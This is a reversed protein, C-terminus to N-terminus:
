TRESNKHGSRREPWKRVGFTNGLYCEVSTVRNFTNNICFDRVQIQAYGPICRGQKLLWLRSDDLYHIPATATEESEYNMSRMNLSLSHRYRETPIGMRIRQSCSLDSAAVKKDTNCHLCAINKFFFRERGLTHIIPLDPGNRCLDEITENYIALLGTKNCAIIDYAMCKFTTVDKGPIFHINDFGSRFSALENVILEPSLFFRRNFSFSDSVIVPQWEHFQSTDNTNVGNCELCYKNTFTLGTLKSTVPIRELLNENDMGAHCKDIIKSDKFWEPCTAIMEYASSDLYNNPKYFVQPRICDASASFLTENAVHKRRIYRSKAHGLEAKVDNENELITQSSNTDQHGFVADEEESEDQGTISTLAGPSTSVDTHKKSGTRADNEEGAIDNDSIRRKPPTRDGSLPTATQNNWLAPCCNFHNGCISLCSCPVCCPVPIRFTSPEWYKSDNKCLFDEGCVNKHLELLLSLRRDIEDNTANTQLHKVFVCVWLCMYFIFVLKM